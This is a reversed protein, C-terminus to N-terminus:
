KQFVFAIIVCVYYLGEFKRFGFNGTELWRHTTTCGPKHLVQDSVEFVPKRMFWNMNCNTEIHFNGLKATAFIIYQLLHILTIYFEGTDM